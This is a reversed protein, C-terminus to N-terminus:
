RLSFSPSPFAKSAAVRCCFVWKFQPWRPRLKDCFACLGYICAHLFVCMSWLMCLGIVSLPRHRPGASRRVKNWSLNILCRMARASWIDGKQGENGPRPYIQLHEAWGTQWATRTAFCCNNKMWKQMFVVLPWQVKWGHALVSVATCIFCPIILEKKRIMKNSKTKILYNSPPHIPDNSTSCESPPVVSVSKSTGPKHPRLLPQKCLVSSDQKNSQNPFNSSVRGRGRRQIGCNRRLKDFPRGVNVGMLGHVDDKLTFNGTRGSGGDFPDLISVGDDGTVVEFYNYTWEKRFYFFKRRRNTSETKCKSIEDFM